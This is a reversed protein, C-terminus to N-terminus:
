EDTEEKLKALAACADYALDTCYQEPFGLLKDCFEDVGGHDEMCQLIARAVTEIKDESM